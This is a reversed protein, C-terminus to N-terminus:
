LSFFFCIGMLLLYFPSHFQAFSKSCTININLWWIINDYKCSIISIHTCIAYFIHTNRLTHEYWHSNALRPSWRCHSYHILTVAFLLTMSDYVADLSLITVITFTHIITRPEGLFQHQQSAFIRILTIWYWYWYINCHKNTLLETQISGVAPLLSEKCLIILM